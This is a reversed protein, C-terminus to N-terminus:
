LSAAGSKVGGINYVRQQVTRTRLYNM